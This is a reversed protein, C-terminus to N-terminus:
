LFGMQKNEASAPKYCTNDSYLLCDLRRWKSQLESLSKVETIPLNEKHILYIADFFDM